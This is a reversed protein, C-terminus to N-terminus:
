RRLFQMIQQIRSNWTNDLAFLRCEEENKKNKFGQSCLQSIKDICDKRSNYLAVYNEFKETEKYLPAICPKGSAVYEYLKVPNVSKILENVIFPMILIDANKMVSFVLNHEIPKCYYVHEIQPILIDTPGFLYVDIYDFAGVIQKILQFDFWSSITGIYVLKVRTENELYFNISSPFQIDEQWLPLSRLANNVVLVEREGYRHILKSKLYDSSAFIFSACEFLKCEKQLIINKMKDSISFEIMDDMCDYIIAQNSSAPIHDIQLPSTLWVFETKKTLFRIQIRYLLSNIKSIISLREYPFRFLSILNVNSENIMESGKFEKRTIVTIDYYESLGEAIFHPRQKIWGWPVHMYYLMKPKNRKHDM